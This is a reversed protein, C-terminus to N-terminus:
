ESSQFRQWRNPNPEQGGSNRWQRYLRGDATVLIWWGRGYFFSIRRRYREGPRPPYFACYLPTGDALSALVRTRDPDMWKCLPSAPNPM